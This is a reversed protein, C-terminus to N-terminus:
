PVAPVIPAPVVPALPELPKPPASVLGLQVAESLNREDNLFSILNNPENSFRTRVAAPLQEFADRAADIRRLTDAYDGINSVDAFVPQFADARRPLEGTSIYRKMIHNIDCEKAFEQKTLGPGTVCVPKVRDGIKHDKYVKSNLMGM